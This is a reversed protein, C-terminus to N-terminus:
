TAPSVARGTHQPRGAFFYILSGIVPLFVIVLVWVLKETPDTVHMLADVLMWIWFATALIGLVWIVLMVSIVGGLIAGGDGANDQAFLLLGSM